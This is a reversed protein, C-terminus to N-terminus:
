LLPAWGVSAGITIEKQAKLWTQEDEILVAAIQAYLFLRRITSLTSAADCRPLVNSNNNKRLDKM